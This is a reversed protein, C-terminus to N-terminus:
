LTEASTIPRRKFGDNETAVPEGGALKKEVRRVDIAFDRLETSCPEGGRESNMRHARKYLELAEALRGLQEYVRARLYPARFDGRHTEDNLTLLDFPAPGAWREFFEVWQEVFALRDGASVPAAALEFDRDVFVEDRWGSPANAANVM